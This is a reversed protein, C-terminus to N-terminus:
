PIISIWSSRLLVITSATQDLGAIDVQVFGPTFGALPLEGRFVGDDELRCDTGLHRRTGDPLPQSLSLRMAINTHWHGIDTDSIRVFLTEDPMFVTVDQDGEPRTSFGVRLISPTDTLTTGSAVPTGARKDTDTENTSAAPPATSAVPAPSTAAPATPAVRAVAAVSAPQGALAAGERFLEAVEHAGLERNFVRVEDILGDLSHVEEQDHSGIAFVGGLRTNIPGHLESMGHWREGNIYYTYRGQGGYTFALHYWIGARDIRRGSLYVGGWQSFAPCDRQHRWDIALATFQNYQKTGYYMFDTSFSPRLSDLAFWWSFSRPADGAPFGQDSTTIRDGPGDLHWAGGGVGGAVWRGGEALGHREQGSHDHIEPGPEDFTFHLLQGDM